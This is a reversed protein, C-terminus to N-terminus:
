SLGADGAFNVQVLQFDPSFFTSSNFALITSLSELNCGTKLMNLSSGCFLIKFCLLPSKLFRHPEAWESFFEHSRTSFRHKM